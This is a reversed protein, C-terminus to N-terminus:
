LKDDKINSEVEKNEIKELENIADISDAIQELEIIKAEENSHPNKNLHIIKFNSVIIKKDSRLDFYGIVCVFIAGLTGQIMDGMTDALALKGVFGEGTLNDEFRQMNSGFINDIFFEFIEWIGASAVSLTFVFLVIFFPGLKVPVEKSENFINIIMFGICAIFSGSIVHLIDDWWSYKIYFEAAEGLILAATCFALFFFEFAHPISVKFFKALFQPTFTFLFMLTGQLIVFGHRSETATTHDDTVASIISVVILFISLIRIFWYFSDTVFESKSKKTKKM